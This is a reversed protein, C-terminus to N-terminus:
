ILNQHSIIYDKPTKNINLMEWLRLMNQPMVGIETRICIELIYAIMLGSKIKIASDIVKM